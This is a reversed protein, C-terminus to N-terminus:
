CKNSRKGSGKTLMASSSNFGVCGEHWWGAYFIPGFRVMKAFGSTLVWSKGNETTAFALRWFWRWTVCADAKAYKPSRRMWGSMSILRMWNNFALVVEDLEKCIRSVESKSVGQMGLAEVLEDVKRTSVGHVYAEQVVALLAKEARRRPELLSPFYSGQRLKPIRLKLTGVRTDWERERYGNRYTTRGENREYREAGIKASVEAEMLSQVLVQLAEKLFDVNGDAGCKRLLELLAIRDISAM